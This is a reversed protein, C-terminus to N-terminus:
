ARAHQAPADQILRVHDPVHPSLRGLRRVLDIRSAPLAQEARAGM